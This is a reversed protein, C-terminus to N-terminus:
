QWFITAGSSSGTAYVSGLEVCHSLAQNYYRKWFFSDKKVCTVLFGIFSPSNKKIVFHFFGCLFFSLDDHYFDSRVNKPYSQCLLLSLVNAFVTWILHSLIWWVFVVSCAFALPIPYFSYGHMNAIRGHINAHQEVCVLIHVNVDDIIRRDLLVAYMISLSNSVFVHFAM